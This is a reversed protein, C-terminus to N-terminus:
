SAMNRCTFYSFDLNAGRLLEEGVYAGQTHYLDGTCFQDWTEIVPGSLERDLNEIEAWWWHYGFLCPQNMFAGRWEANEVDV